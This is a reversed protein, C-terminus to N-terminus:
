ARIRWGDGKRKEKGVGGFAERVVLWMGTSCVVDKLEEATLELGQPELGGGGHGGFAGAFGGGLGASTAPRQPTPPPLPTAASQEVPLGPMPRRRVAMRDVEVDPLPFPVKLMAVVKPHHPTPSLTGLKLKLTQGTACGTDSFSQPNPSPTRPAGSATSPRASRPPVQGSGGGIRKIKLTCTWPTESDEPDSEDGDDKTGESAGPSSETRRSSVSFRKSRRNSSRQSAAEADDAAGSAPEGGEEPVAEGEPQAVTSAPRSGREAEMDRARIRPGQGTSRTVVLSDRRKEAERKKASKASKGRKWEFRVEVMRMGPEHAGVSLFGSGTRSASADGTESAPRDRTGAIGLGMVRQGVRGLLGNDNGKMWRRAIWVYMVAKSTPAGTNNIDLPVISLSPQIGLVPPRLAVTPAASPDQPTRPLPLTGTAPSSHFNVSSSSDTPTVPFHGLPLPSPSRRTGKGASRGVLSSLSSQMRKSRPTPTDETPPALTQPVSPTRQHGPSIASTFKTSSNALTPTQDASTEDPTVKRKFIKGFINRKSGASVISPNPSIIAASPPARSQYQIQNSQDIGVSSVSLHSSTPTHHDESVSPTGPRSGAAQSREPEPHLYATSPPRADVSTRTSTTGGPMANWVEVPELIALDIMELGRKQFKAIKADTGADVITNTMVNHAQLNYLPIIMRRGSSSSAVSSFSSVSSYGSSYM